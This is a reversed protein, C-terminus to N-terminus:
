KGPTEELQQRLLSEYVLAQSRNASHLKICYNQLKEVDRCSMIHREFLEMSFQMSLNFDSVFRM